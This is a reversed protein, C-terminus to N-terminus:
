KSIKPQAPDKNSGLSAEPQPSPLNSELQPTCAEWHLPTEQPGCAGPCGPKLLQLEYARSCLSLLQPALAYNSGPMRSRGLDPVSGTDGASAPLNKVVSGGPFDGLIKGSLSSKPNEQSHANNALWSPISSSSVQSMQPETIKLVGKNFKQRPQSNTEATIM